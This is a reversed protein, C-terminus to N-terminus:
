GEGEAEVTRQAHRLRVTLVGGGICLGGLAFLMVPWSLSDAFHISTFYAIYSILACAGAGTLTRSRSLSGGLILMGAYGAYVIDMSWADLLYFVGWSSLAAGVLNCLPTVVQHRTDKLMWAAALLSLGVLSLNADTSLGLQDGASGIFNAGACLACFVLVTLRYVRWLLLHQLTMVLATATLALSHDEGIDLEHIAVMIGSSQIVAAVPFLAQAMRETAVHRMLAMAVLLFVTGAGLYSWTRQTDTLHEWQLEIIFVLGCLVLVAGAIAFVTGAVSSLRSARGDLAGAIDQMSLEHQRALSAIQALAAQKSM